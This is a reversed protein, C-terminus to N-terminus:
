QKKGHVLIESIELYFAVLVLLANGHTRVASLANECALVLNGARDGDLACDAALALESRPHFYKAADPESAFWVNRVLAICLTFFKGLQVASYGAAIRELGPAAELPDNVCASEFIWRVDQGLNGTSEDLADLAISLSGQASQLALEAPEGAGNAPDRRALESRIQEDTLHGFRVIQCRSRITPLVSHPRSSCLIMVTGAPPEELTKLMANSAEKNLLDIDTIIMVHTRGSVSGRQVAHAAEKVWELPVTRLGDAPLARYPDAIKARISENVFQWGVDNLSGGSGRCERSFSLPSIITLEPHSFHAVKRCSECVGCPVNGDSACLLAGALDIAAAFTGTGEDGCFLYAHGLTGGLFANGLVERIRQQGILNKWFIEKM